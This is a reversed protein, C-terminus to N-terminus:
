GTEIDSSALAVDSARFGCQPKIKGVIYKNPDSEYERHIYYGITGAV